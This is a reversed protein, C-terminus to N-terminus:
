IHSSICKQFDVRIRNKTGVVVIFSLAEVIQTDSVIESSFFKMLDHFKLPNVSMVVLDIQDMPVSEIVQKLLKSESLSLQLTMNIARSYEFRKLLIQVNQPTAEMDLDTPAFVMM